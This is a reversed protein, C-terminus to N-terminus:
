FGILSQIYIIPRRFLYYFISVSNSYVKAVGHSGLTTLKSNAPLKAVVFFSLVQEQSFTTSTSIYDIKANISSLPSTNPFFKVLDGKKFQLMDKVPIYIDIQKKQGLALLMVKSGIQVPKGLWDKPSSFFVIGDAPAVIDSRSLLSKQYNVKLQNKKVEQKLLSIHIESKDHMYTHQFAQRYKENSVYLDNKANKYNHELTIKDLQFLSQNKKVVQNPLVNIKSIVGDLSSSIVLPDKPSIEAPAIITQPIPIFMILLIIVAAIKIVSKNKALIRPTAKKPKYNSLQKAQIFILQLEEIWKQEDDNFNRNNIYLVGGCLIDDDGDVLPCFAVEEQLYEQWDTTLEKPCDAKNIFSIKNAYTSNLYPLFIRELWSLYPSNKNLSSTASVADIVFKNNRFSFVVAQSYSFIKHSKNAILFNLQKEDEALRIEKQFDLFVIAQNKNDM